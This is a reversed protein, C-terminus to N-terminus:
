DASDSKLPFQVDLSPNSRFITTEIKDIDEKARNHDKIAVVQNRGTQKAKYLGLDARRFLEQFDDASHNLTALGISITIKFTTNLASIETEEVVQRIREAVIEADSFDTEPLLVTFEEGGFRGLFDPDRLEGGIVKVIKKLTLDGVQHGYSDNVKKFHDLDLLLFSMPLNHRKSREIEKNTLNEMAARNYVETLSDLTALRMIEAMFSDYIMLSFSFTLGLISVFFLGFVFSHAISPQFLRDSHSHFNVLVAFFRVLATAAITLFGIGMVLESVRPRKEPTIILLYFCMLSIILGAGSTLLTRIQFSPQVFTFFIFAPVFISLLIFLATKATKSTLQKFGAIALYFLVGSFVILFNALFISLVVPLEDRLGLLAWGIGQFGCAAAWKRIGKVQPYNAATVFIGVSM